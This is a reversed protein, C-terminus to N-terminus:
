LDQLEEERTGPILRYPTTVLWAFTNAFDELASATWVDESHYVAQGPDDRWYHTLEHIGVEARKQKPVASSIQIFVRRGVRVLQGHDGPPLPLVRVTIGERQAIRGFADWDVPRKLEPHVKALARLFPIYDKRRLQQRSLGYLPSIPSM